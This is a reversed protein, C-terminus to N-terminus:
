VAPISKALENKPRLVGKLWSSIQSHSHYSNYLTKYTFSIPTFIQHSFPCSSIHTDVAYRHHNLSLYMYLSDPNHYFAQAFGFHTYTSEFVHADDSTDRTRADNWRLYGSCHRTTCWRASRVLEWGIATDVECRWGTLWVSLDVTRVVSTVAGGFVNLSEVLALCCVEGRPWTSGAPLRVSM